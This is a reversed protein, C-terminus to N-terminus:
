YTLVYRKKTKPAVAPFMKKIITGVRRHGYDNFSEDKHRGPLSPILCIDIGSYHYDDLNVNLLSRYPKKEPM